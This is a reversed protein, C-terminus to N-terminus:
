GTVPPTFVNTVGVRKTNCRKSAIPSFVLVGAKKMKISHKIVGKSNSAGTKLNVKAKSSTIRVHIGKVAKGGQTVHITLTTKRGVFLQKPTVRSVAICPQPPTPTGVIQVTASATNNTTNTEPRNGSVTVTNTQGGVASPKTILTITVTSNAPMDGINCTLIAGGTCTGQTSTASVFTNGGPMPDTIQVGTDANPGHNTVVITWTIQTDPNLEQTAPSGSKTVSLDVLAQVCTSATSQDSGDNSTTVNGTNNVVGTEPCDGATAPTTASTIHVTFTSASQTTNAPVTMGNAGGCSLVGASIACSGDWGTGQSAITWSLGPNTPLTDTLKVGHADGAGSNSVTLTFGISDGVNVKAKDATKVIHIAAPQVVVPEDACGSSAPLNNDDGSFSAVWYYTGAKTLVVGNPTEFTGNDDVEVTETHLPDGSCESNSYLNWTISGQGSQNVSGSLTASDKFTDGVSGSAPDQNTVIKPQNPNVVVPEDACGSTASANNSDGSFSAVWYYTGANQLQVGTPTEFPGNTSVDGVMDTAAPEGSCDNSTYLTWTITGTGDLNATDSLTAQDKYLDGIAGSAPDQTTAIKPQNPTVKVPEDACGSTASLNNSDGSFSAVWYYTGVNNLIVGNPTEFPGNSSIDSVTETDLADGSCENNSYLKWTISGTGDLNATNSLTAKDKYTDGIAGSAPDQTTAITPQNPNVTIPEDACGSKASLNNSDGSFSAVWYYTGANQVTVGNPTEFPGNGSVGTVQDTGLPTGSCDSKPYLTWTISGTGDLNATNSLTAKDKYTDGIAGSAPDQTTAISPQNPNVVVPEDACGSSASLNNSDGSFSAVWYYTGANQVTVGNPTELPGNSSVGTVKDTGLPTGSCDSKPYLTWTITGSGDLNATNSLTAKDKYTDGIAGSAPDQTTAISPQNPNVVVPEDSCGSIAGMNNKDGTFAAVWYYTGANQIKVGTPTEFTGNDDVLMSESDLPTGTCNSNPYLTWVIQGTGDQNVSNSLTAQDKYTDGIAGSAPDQTTVIAPQNPNVIVPEAACGSSASTNNGDGSFSAVWYYTGANQVTVGTPTEFPGNSSIGTVQDTGLATGSCDNNPYLTWTITGTGDLNSTNSLTAKDKYTDGISGSAPDQTTVITPTARVNFCETTSNTHSGARYFKAGATDPTYDARWCYKGAATTLAAGAAASTASGASITVPSGVQTGAPSVCGGVTVESPKCLSFTITGTPDPRNAVKTVTAVDTQNAAASPDVTGGPTATTDIIPPVCTDLTGGAFDKLTATLVDSSRTEALFNTFCGGGSGLLTTLDIGTEVFTNSDHSTPSWPTTIAASNAIACTDDPSVTGCVGGSTISTDLVPGGTADNGVWKYVQVNQTGGGNTYNSIILIDGDQHQGSFNNQGSCGVTPDKLLWFGAFSTGNNSGRESAMYLVQDGANEPANNPM